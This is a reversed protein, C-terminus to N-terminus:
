TEDHAGGTLLIALAIDVVRGRQEKDLKLLPSYLAARLRRQEDANVRANPFRALLAESEQALELASKGAKGLAEDNKLTWYLGFARTSLGSEKAAKIAEEKEKALAALADMAALGTTKRDELAKLIREAREKLPQLVPAAVSEYEIEQHLGRV